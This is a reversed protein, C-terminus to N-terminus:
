AEGRQMVAKVREGAEREQRALWVLESVGCQSCRRMTGELPQWDHPHEPINSKVYLGAAAWTAAFQVMGMPDQEGPEAIAQEMLRAIDQEVPTLNDKNM